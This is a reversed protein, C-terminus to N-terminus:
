FDKTCLKVIECAFRNDQCIDEQGQLIKVLSEVANGCLLRVRNDVSTLEPECYITASSNNYGTVSLEEPVRVGRAKAYKLAGVALVDNCAFVSDFELTRHVLLMEKVYDVENKTYFKLDGLIPYGAESLAQEYGLLKQQASFTQSDALFLIRKKGRRVLASTVDYAGQRDDGYFCYINEGEVYGNILFIPVKKAAM